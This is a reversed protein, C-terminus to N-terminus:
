NGRIYPRDALVQRAERIASHIMDKFYSGCRADKGQASWERNQKGCERHDQFEEISKYICGGLSDSSIKNGKYFVSAEVFFAVLRGRELDKRVSGDEDFSLDTEYDEYADVAVTFNKTHFQRIRGLKYPAMTKGGRNSRTTFHKM